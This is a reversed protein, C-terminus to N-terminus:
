VRRVKQPRPGNHPVPTVDRIGTIEFNKAGLSRLASDRGAGVGKIFVEVKTVGKAEALQAIADAVKSAAYPTSKKTGKFGLRGASLAALVNGRTDCLSVITNNYSSYIYIRGERMGKPAAAVGVSGERSSTSVAAEDGSKQAIRKKGM